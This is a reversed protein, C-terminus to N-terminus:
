AKILKKINDFSLGENAAEDFVNYMENILDSLKERYVVLKKYKNMDEFQFKENELLSSAEFLDVKSGLYKKVRILTKIMPSYAAMDAESLPAKLKNGNEDIIGLKYAQLDKFDKKLENIFIENELFSQVSEKFMSNYNIGHIHLDSTPNVHCGKGYNTSGCYACKKPNDPFYHVGYPAYRCGKGRTTSGCYICRSQQAKPQNTPQM